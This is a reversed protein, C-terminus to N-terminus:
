FNLFANSLKSFAALLVFGCTGMIYNLGAEQMVYFQVQAGSFDSIAQAGIVKDKLDSVANIEQNTALTV